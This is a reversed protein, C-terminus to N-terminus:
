FLCTLEEGRLKHSVPYLVGNKLVYLRNCLSLEQNEHTALFIIGGSNRYAELYTRIAEKCVLDLAAGPEDLIPPDALMACGIRVRKKMGGSLQRVRKQLMPALDLIMLPGETLIRKLDRSNETWLRLNDYVTLEPFLPCEQPVYGTYLRFLQRRDLKQGDIEIVGQRCRVAGALISLLTTKGCGNAGIIGVCDGPSAKLSVNQLVRNRGYAYSLNSACFM